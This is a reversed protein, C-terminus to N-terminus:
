VQQALPISWCDAIAELQDHGLATRDAKSHFVHDRGIALQRRNDAQRASAQDPRLFRRAPWDRRAFVPVIVDGGFTERRDHRELVDVISRPIAREPALNLRGYVQRKAHQTADRIAREAVDIRERGAKLDDAPADTRAMSMHM